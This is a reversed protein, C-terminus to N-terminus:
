MIFTATSWLLRCSKNCKKRKSTCHLSFQFRKNQCHSLSVFHKKFFHIRLSLAYGYYCLCTQMMIYDKLVRAQSVILNSWRHWDYFSNGNVSSKKCLPLLDRKIKLKWIPPTVEVYWKIQALMSHTNHVAQHSSMIIEWFFSWNCVCIVFKWSVLFFGWATPM